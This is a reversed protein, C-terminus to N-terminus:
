PCGRAVAAALFLAVKGEADCSVRVAAAVRQKAADAERVREERVQQELLLRARRAREEQELRAKSERKEAKDAYIAIVALLAVIASPVLISVM